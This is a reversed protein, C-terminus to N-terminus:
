LSKTGLFYLYCAPSRVDSETKFRATRVKTQGQSLLRMSDFVQMAIEGVWGSWGVMGVFGRACMVRLSM